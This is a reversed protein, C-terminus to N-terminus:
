LEVRLLEVLRDFSPPAGRVSMWRGSRTLEEAHDAIAFVGHHDIFDLEDLELVLPGEPPSALRLLRRLDDACFCDVQGALSLGERGAFLRFPALGAAGHTARHVCGLDAVIEEPLRRRDFCCLGALPHRAAYRDAVGEWRLHAEWLAPDTVLPTVDAAVRLGAFGDALATETAAAYMTLQAIPDIPTGVAYATELPMIRMTGDALLSEVGPIDEVDRRLKAVGGPGVYLLRQGLELGDVLFDFVGARFEADDGYTWCGHAHLGLGGSSEVEGHRRM